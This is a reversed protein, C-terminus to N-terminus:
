KDIIMNFSISIRLDKNNNPEVYHNLWSPFLILFDKKPEIEFKSSNYHNFGNTNCNNWDYMFTQYSPHLFVLKGSNLPVKLYYVGSIISNPHHHLINFNNQSNVNIWINSIKLKGSFSLQKFFINVEKKVIEFLINFPKKFKNDGFILNNSQWGGRNSNITGEYNKYINLCYNLLKNSELVIKKSYVPTKFLDIIMNNKLGFILLYVIDKKM